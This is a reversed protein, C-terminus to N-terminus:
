SYKLVEPYVLHNSAWCWVCLLLSDSSEHSYGSMTHGTIERHRWTELEFLLGELGFTRSLWWWRMKLRPRYKMPTRLTRWWDTRNLHRIDLCHMNYKPSNSSVKQLIDESYLRLILWFEIEGGFLWVGHPSSLSKRILKNFSTVDWPISTDKVICQMSFIIESLMWEGVNVIVLHEAGHFIRRWLTQAIPSHKQIRIETVDKEGRPSTHNRVAM